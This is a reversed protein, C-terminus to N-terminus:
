TRSLVIGRNETVERRVLGREIMEKLLADAAPAPYYMAERPRTVHSGEGIVELHEAIIADKNLPPAPDLAPASTVYEDFVTWHRALKSYASTLLFPDPYREALDLVFDAQCLRKEIMTNILALDSRNAGLASLSEACEDLMGDLIEAVPRAKGDWCFTAQMGWRAAAWRNTLGDTYREPTPTEDHDLRTGRHHLYAAIFTALEALLRRSSACDTIRVEVTPASEFKPGVDTGWVYQSLAPDQM